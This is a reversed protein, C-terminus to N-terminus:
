GTFPLLNMEAFQQVAFKQVAFQQVAFKRFHVQMNCCIWHLLGGEKCGGGARSSLALLKGSFQWM